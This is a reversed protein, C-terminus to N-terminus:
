STPLIGRDECIDALILFLTFIIIATVAIAIQELGIAGSLLAGSKTDAVYLYLGLGACLLLLADLVILLAYNTTPKLSVQEREILFRELLKDNFDSSPVPIDAQELIRKLHISDNNKKM